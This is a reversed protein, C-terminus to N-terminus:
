LFNDVVFFMNMETVGYYSFVCFVKGSYKIWWLRMKSGYFHFKLKCRFIELIFLEEIRERYLVRFHFFFFLFVLM